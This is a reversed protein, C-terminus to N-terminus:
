TKERTRHEKFALWVVLGFFGGAVDALVDGLDSQRTATFSQEYEDAVGLLTVCLLSFLVIVLDSYGFYAKSDLVRALLWAIGGFVCFHVLKDLNPVVSNDISPPCSSEYAVLAIIIALAAEFKYSKIVSFFSRSGRASSRSHRMIEEEAM